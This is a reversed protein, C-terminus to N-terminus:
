LYVGGGPASQGPVPRVAGSVDDRDGDHDPGPGEAAEDTKAVSSHVQPSVPSISM